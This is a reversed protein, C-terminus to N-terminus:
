GVPNLRDVNVYEWWIVKQKENTPMPNNQFRDVPKTGRISCNDVCINVIFMM